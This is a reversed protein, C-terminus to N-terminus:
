TGTRQMLAAFPNTATKWLKGARIYRVTSASVGLREAVVTAPEDSTRAEEATEATLKLGGGKRNWAAKIAIGRRMQLGPDKENNRKQIASLSTRRMHDPNMCTSVNCTMTVRDKDRLTGGAALYVFRRGSMNKKEGDIKRNITPLGKGNKSGSWLWCGHEDCVCRLRIREIEKNM